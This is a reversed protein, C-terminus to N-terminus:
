TQVFKHKEIKWKLLEFRIQDYNIFSIYTNIVLLVIVFSILSFNVCCGFYLCLKCNLVIIVFGLVLAVSSTLNVVFYNWKREVKSVVIKGSGVEDLKKWEEFEKQGGRLYNFREVTGLLYILLNSISSLVFSSSVFFIIFYIQNGFKDGVCVIKYFIIISWFISAPFVYRFLGEQININM